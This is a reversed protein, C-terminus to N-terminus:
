EGEEGSSGVFMDYLERLLDIPMIDENIPTIIIPRERDSFRGIYVGLISEVCEMCPIDYRDFKDYPRIYYAAPRILCNTCTLVPVEGGVVAGLEDKKKM